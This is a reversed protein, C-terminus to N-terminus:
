KLTQLVKDNTAIKLLQQSEKLQKSNKRWNQEIMAYVKGEKSLKWDTFNFIPDFYEVHKEYEDWLLLIERLKYLQARDTKTKYKETKDLGEHISNILIIKEDLDDM